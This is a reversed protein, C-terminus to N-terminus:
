LIDCVTKCADIKPQTYVDQGAQRSLHQSIYECRNKCVERNNETYLSVSKDLAYGEKKMVCYVSFAFLLIVGVYVIRHM